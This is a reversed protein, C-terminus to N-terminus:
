KFYLNEFINIVFGGLVLDVEKVKKKFGFSFPSFGGLELGFGFEKKEGFFNFIRLFGWVLILGM